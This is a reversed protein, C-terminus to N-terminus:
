NTGNADSVTAAATVTAAAAATATAEPVVTADDAPEKYFKSEKPIKFKLKVEEPSHGKIMNAITKCNLELLPKIDLYNALMTLMFLPDYHPTGGAIIEEIFKKDVDTINDTRYKDAETVEPYIVSYGTTDDGKIYQSAWTNFIFNVNAVTCNNDVIPIPHDIGIDDILHSLTKSVRSRIVTTEVIQGHVDLKVIAKAERYSLIVPPIVVAAPVEPTTTDAAPTTTATDAAPTTDMQM